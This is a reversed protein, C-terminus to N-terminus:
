KYFDTMPKFWDSYRFHAQKESCWFWGKVSQEEDSEVYAGLPFPRMNGRTKEDAERSQKDSSQVM